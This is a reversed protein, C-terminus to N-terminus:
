THARRASMGGTRRKASREEEAAAADVMRVRAQRHRNGWDLAARGEEGRHGEEM